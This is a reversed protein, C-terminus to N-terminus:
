AEIRRCSDFVVGEDGLGQVSAISIPSPSAATAAIPADAAESSVCLKSTLHGSELKRGAAVEDIGKLHIM